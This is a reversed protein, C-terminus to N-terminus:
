DKTAIIVDVYKVALDIATGTFSHTHASNGGTNTTTRTTLTGLVSGSGGSGPTGSTTLVNTVDHNHQPMDVTLLTTNGVTGSVAQSAFATTFDVTGGSSATGSVVRLAKNNHTTSKTWGTPASTQAFLCATGSPFFSTTMEALINSKINAWTAGKDATASLDYVGFIDGDALDGSAIAALTSPRQLFRADAAQRNLADTDATADGLGTIKKSNFPINASITSQGDRCIVNSLATAIGDFEGDMRDARIKVTNNRDTVWNYLRSFTGSGNYAM